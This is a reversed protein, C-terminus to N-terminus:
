ATEFVVTQFSFALVSFQARFNGKALSNSQRENEHEQYGYVTSFIIQM